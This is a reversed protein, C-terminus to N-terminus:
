WDPLEEWKIVTTGSNNYLRRLYSYINGNVDLCKYVYTVFWTVGKTHENRNYCYLKYFM